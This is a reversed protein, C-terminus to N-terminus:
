RGGLWPQADEVRSGTAGDDPSETVSLYGDHDFHCCDGTSDSAAQAAETMSLEFTEMGHASESPDKSGACRGVSGVKRTDPRAAPDISHM